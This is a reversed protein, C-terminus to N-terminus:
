LFREQLGSPLAAIRSHPPLERSQAVCIEVAEYPELRLTRAESEAQIITRRLSSMPVEPMEPDYIGEDQIALDLLARLVDDKSVRLRRATRELYAAQHPELRM